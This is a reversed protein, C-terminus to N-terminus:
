LQRYAASETRAATTSAMEEADQPAAGRLAKGLLKEGNDLKQCRKRPLTSQCGMAAGAETTGASLNRGLM